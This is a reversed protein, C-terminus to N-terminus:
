NVNSITWNEPRVVGFTTLSLAMLVAALAFNAFPGALVIALGPFLVIWDAQGPQRM